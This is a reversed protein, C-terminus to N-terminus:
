EALARLTDFLVDDLRAIKMANPVDLLRHSLNENKLTGVLSQVAAERRSPPIDNKSRQLLWAAAASVIANENELTYVVHDLADAKLELVFPQTVVKWAIRQVTSAYAHVKLRADESLQRTDTCAVLLDEVQQKGLQKELRLAYLDIGRTDAEYTLSSPPLGSSPAAELLKQIASRLLRYEITLSHSQSELSQIGRQIQDRRFSSLSPAAAAISYLCLLAESRLIGEAHKLLKCLAEVIADQDQDLLTRLDHLDLMQLLDFAHVLDQVNFLSRLDRLDLLDGLAGLDRLYRLTCLRRSDRLGRLDQLNRLRLVERLDRLYLNSVAILAQIQSPGDHSLGVILENAIEKRKEPKKNSLLLRLGVCPQYTASLGRMMEERLFKDWSDIWYETPSEIERDLAEKLFYASPYHAANSAQLLQQQLDVADRQGLERWRSVIPIHKEWYGRQTSDSGPFAAPTILYELELAHDTLRKLLEPQRNGWNSWESHLWGAPGYENLLHLAVFAYEEVRSSIPITGQLRRLEARIAISSGPLDHLDAVPLDHLKALKLLPPILVLRVAPSCSLLDPAIAALLHVAGFQQGIQGADSLAGRWANLFPPQTDRLVGEQTQVRLLLLAVEEIDRQLQIFRGYELSDGYLNFLHSAIDKQLDGEISSQDCDALSEAAFLLNPHLIRDTDHGADTLIAKILESAQEHQGTRSKYAIVLLIPEHWIPDRYHEVVAQKLEELPKQALYLAIFYEQFSRHAFVVYGKQMRIFLECSRRLKQLLQQINDDSVVEMQMDYREGAIVRRTIKNVEKERASSEGQLQYALESLIQKAWEIEDPKLKFSEPKNMNWEDLLMSVIAEYLGIRSQPLKGAYAQLAILLTLLLPNAALRKVSPNIEFTELLRDQQETVLSRKALFQEIQERDLNLLAYHPYSLFARVKEQYGFIRSTIIFRNYDQATSSTFYNSIFQYLQASIDKDAEDLGDILVLCGGQEMKDILLGHYKKHQERFFQELSLDNHEQLRKTYDTIRLLIPIQRPSLKRSLPYRQSFSARAMEQAFWNMITSKGSGPAGLIVAVPKEATLRQLVEDFFLPEEPVLRGPSMTKLHFAREEHSLDPRQYLEEQLQEREVPVDWESQIPIIRLPIFVRDLPIRSTTPLPPTHLSAAGEVRRLSQSYNETEESERRISELYLQLLQKSKKSSEGGKLTIILTTIGAWATIAFLLGVLVLILIQWLGFRITASLFARTSTPAQLLGGLIAVATGLSITGIIKWLLWTIRWVRHAIKYLM